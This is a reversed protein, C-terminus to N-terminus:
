AAGGILAEVRELVDNAVGPSDAAEVVKALLGKCKSIEAEIEAGRGTDIRDEIAKLEKEVAALARERQEVEMRRVGIEGDSMKERKAIELDQNAFRVRVRADEVRHRAQSLHLQPALSEREIQLRSIQNELAQAAARDSDTMTSLLRKQMEYLQRCREHSRDRRTTAAAINEATLVRLREAENQAESLAATADAREQEAAPVERMAEVIRAREECRDLMAVFDEAGLGAADLLDAIADPEIHAGKAARWAVARLEREAQARAAARTGVAVAVAERAPLASGNNKAKAM